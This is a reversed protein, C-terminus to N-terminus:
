ARPEEDENLRGIRAADNAFHKWAWEVAREVTAVGGFACLAACALGQLYNLDAWWIILSALLANAGGVLASVLLEHKIEAWPKRDKVMRGAQAMMGILLGAPIIVLWLPDFLSSIAGVVLPPVTKIATEGGHVM